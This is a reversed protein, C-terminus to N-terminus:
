YRPQQQQWPAPALYQPGRYTNSNVLGRTVGGAVSSVAGTFAGAGAGTVKNGLMAGTLTAAGTGVVGSVIEAGLPTLMQRPKGDPGTVTTCGALACAIILLTFPPTLHIKM